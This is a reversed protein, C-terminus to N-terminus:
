IGRLKKINPAPVSKLKERLLDARFADREEASLKKGAAQQLHAPQTHIFLDDLKARLSAPWFGLDVGLILLSLLNLAEKSTMSYAHLAIGYSRGLQDAVVRRREQAIKLRANHEHEILHQIVKLLRNLIDRESEGLTMQNSVQFLNGLAETGEGYLGRVALGIQNASKIVQNIQDGLVLGPLHLMVSARMGTGVNTPCATLYGLAPSFAFNLEDELESDIRDIASWAEELHLDPHIAQLRLHDEENIMVSLTQDRNIVLGSGSNKAAQERSILHQEVLMQKELPSFADMARSLFPERMEPLHSVAGQIVGLLDERSKKKLWGPFPHNKLNRALRVRSSM